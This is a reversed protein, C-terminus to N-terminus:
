QKSPSDITLAYASLSIGRYYIFCLFEGEGGGFNALNLWDFAM